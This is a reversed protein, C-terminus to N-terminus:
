NSDICPKLKLKFLIFYILLIDMIVATKQKKLMVLQLFIKSCLGLDLMVGAKKAVWAPTCPPM